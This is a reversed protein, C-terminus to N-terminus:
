LFHPNVRTPFHQTLFFPYFLEVVATVVTTIATVAHESHLPCQAGAKCWASNLCQTFLRLAPNRHWCFHKDRLTFLFM